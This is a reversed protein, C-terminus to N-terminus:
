IFETIIVVGNFGNGGTAGATIGVNVGGGGGSGYGTANSGNVAGSIAFAGRAGGGLYSCAGMGAQGILRTGDSTGDEGSSGGSILSTATGLSFSPPSGAGGFSTQIGTSATSGFGAAGGSAELIIGFQSDSGATGNTGSVSGGAGGAGVNVNKSGGVTAASFIDRIYSGAAGGGGAAAGVGSEAGGGGAGGAVLEVVCFKMGSTPTYTGNTTFIIQKITSFAVQAVSSINGSADFHAFGAGFSSFRVASSVLNLSSATLVTVASANGINLATSTAAFNLTPSDISGSILTTLTTTGSFTWNGGVTFNAM